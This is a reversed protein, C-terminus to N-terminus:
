KDEVEEAEVDVVLQAMSKIPISTNGLQKRSMPSLGLRDCLRQLSNSSVWYIQALPNVKIGGKGKSVLGAEGLHTTIVQQLLLERALLEVLYKDQAQIQPLEMVDSIIQERYSELVACTQELEYYDCRDTYPCQSCKLFNAERLAYFGHKKNPADPRQPAIRKTM